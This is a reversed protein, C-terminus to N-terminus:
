NGKVAPTRPDGYEIRCRALERDFWRRYDPTSPPDALIGEMVEGKVEAYAVARGKRLNRLFVVYHLSSRSHEVGTCEGPKMKLLAELIWEDLVPDTPPASRPFTERPIRGRTTGRGGKDIEEAAAEYGGTRAKAAFRRAEEEEVFMMRDIELTDELLANFRLIKDLTLTEDLFRSGAVRATWAELTTGDRALQARFAEDGMQRRVQRAYAEARRGLEEPTHSIGLAKRRDEVVRWRVYQDVATKLDLELMKEAVVRWRLPEGNYFAVIEGGNGPSVQAPPLAAPLMPEARPGSGCAALPLASAAWFVLVKMFAAIIARAAPSDVALRM